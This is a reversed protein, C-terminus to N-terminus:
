HMEFNFIDLSKIIDNHINKSHIKEDYYCSLCTKNSLIWNFNIEPIIGSLIKNAREQHFKSTTIYIEDIKNNQSYKKFYAFNEATNTAKDEIEIIWNDNWSERLQNEMQYAEPLEGSNGYKTSGSLYWVITQNSEWVNQQNSNVFDIASQIRSEQIDVMHCGLVLIIIYNM